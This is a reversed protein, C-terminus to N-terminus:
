TEAAKGGTIQVSHVLSDPISGRGDLEYCKEIGVSSNRSM